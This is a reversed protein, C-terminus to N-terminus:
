DNDEWAAVAAAWATTPKVATKDVRADIVFPGDCDLAADFAAALDAPRDVKVGEAGMSRGFALWDVGDIDTLASEPAGMSHARYWINGYSRNNLILLTMRQRHAVATHLEMGHMLMCGDGTITLHPVDPRAAASGITLPIAAGMPGINTASLYERPGYAQWHQAAFARHAGSDVVAVTERPFAARAQAIVRAPHLPISTSSRSDVDYERTGASQVRELLSKRRSRGSELGRAVGGDAAALARLFPAPAGNVVESDPWARTLLSPDEDVHVLAQSPLMRRDWQMTDRQSLASGIVILIELEPGMILDTAWRSGGYGFVGLSMPHDEPLIGKAGLTTAVPIHWKSAVDALDTEGNRRLGPGALIAITRGTSGLPRCCGIWPTRTM